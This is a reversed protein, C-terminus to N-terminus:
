SWRRLDAHDQDIEALLRKADAAAHSNCLHDHCAMGTGDPSLDRGEVLRGATGAAEPRRHLLAMLSSAGNSRATDPTPGLDKVFVQPPEGMRSHLFALRKGDRSLSLAGM